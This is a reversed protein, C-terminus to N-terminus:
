ILLDLGEFIKEMSYARIELSSRMTKAIKWAGCCKRCKMDMNTKWAVKPENWGLGM